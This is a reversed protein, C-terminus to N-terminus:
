ITAATRRTKIESARLRKMHETACFVLPDAALAIARRKFLDPSLPVGSCANLLDVMRELRGDHIAGVACATADLEELRVSLRKRQRDRAQPSPFPTDRLAAMARITPTAKVKMRWAGTDIWGRQIGTVLDNQLCAVLSAVFALLPNASILDPDLGRNIVGYQRRNLPKM